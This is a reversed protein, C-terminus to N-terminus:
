VHHWFQSCPHNWLFVAHLLNKLIIPFLLHVFVLRDWRKIAPLTWARSAWYTLFFIGVPCVGSSALNAVFLKGSADTVLVNQMNNCETMVYWMMLVCYPQVMATFSFMFKDSAQDLRYFPTHRKPTSTCGPMSFGTKRFEDLLRRRITEQTRRWFADVVGSEEFCVNKCFCFTSLAETWQKLTQFTSILNM